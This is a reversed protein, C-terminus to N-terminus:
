QLSRLKANAVIQKLHRQIPKMLQQEQEPTVSIPERKPMRGTGSQHYGAYPVKSGLVMELPRKEVVSDGGSSTLSRYLRGTRTLIPVDGYQRQKREKYPSSLQKWKGSKGASGESQFQEKEIRYFEFQVADWTGLDRFDLMGKEVGAFARLLEDLGEVEVTFKM